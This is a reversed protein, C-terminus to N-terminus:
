NVLFAGLAPLITSINVLGSAKHTLNHGMRLNQGRFIWEPFANRFSEIDSEVRGRAKDKVQM